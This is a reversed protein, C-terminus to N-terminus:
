ATTAPPSCSSRCASASSTAPAGKVPRYHADFTSISRHLQIIAERATEVVDQFNPGNMCGLAVQFEPAVDMIDTLVREISRRLKRIAARQEKPCAPELPCFKDDLYSSAADRLDDHLSTRQELDSTAILDCVAEILEAPIEPRGDDCTSSAPDSVDLGQDFEMSETCLIHLSNGNSFRPKTAAACGNRAPSDFIERCIGQLAPFQALRYQRQGARLFGRFTPRTLTTAASESTGHPCPFPASSCSKRRPPRRRRQLPLSPPPPATM